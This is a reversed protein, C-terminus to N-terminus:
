PRRPRLVFGSGDSEVTVHRLDPVRADAARLQEARHTTAVAVVRMGARVAATIGAPADEVVLCQRPLVALKAAAHLYPEPDPKGTSVDDATVLVPPDPIGTKRMRSRALTTDGSTVIGWGARPLAAVFAAAGPALEVPAEPLSQIRLLEAVLARKRPQALGPHALELAQEAPIGHMYPAIAALPIGLEGAVWQWAAEVSATSDVLTGDLDLLIARATLPWPGDATAIM